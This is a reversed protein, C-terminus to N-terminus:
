AAPTVNVPEASIANGASPTSLEAVMVAGSVSANGIAIRLQTLKSLDIPKDDDGNRGHGGRGDGREVKLLGVNQATEILERLGSTALKMTQAKAEIMGRCQRYHENADPKSGDAAAYPHTPLESAEAILRVYAAALTQAADRTASVLTQDVVAGAQLRTEAAQVATAGLVRGRRQQWNQLTACRELTAFDLGLIDAIADLKEGNVFREFASAYQKRKSNIKRGAM